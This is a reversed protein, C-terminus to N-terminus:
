VQVTLGSLLVMRSESTSVDGEIPLGNRAEKGSSSHMEKLM